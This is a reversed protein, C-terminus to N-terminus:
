VQALESITSAILLSTVEVPGEIQVEWNTARFGSPLRFPTSSTSGQAQTHKLVGDAYVKVTVPGAAFVQAAGFNIPSPVQFKKSKWVLSHAGSGAAWEVIVGAVVLYLRGTEREYWGATATIDHTSFDGTATDFIFGGSTMFGIYLSEYQVAFVLADSYPKWEKKTMLSATALEVAGTGVLWLGSPGPYMCAYGMDVFGRKLLCAEGKELKEVSLQGPIAGTVVYPMGKTTVLISNGYAGKAVIEADVTIQYEPPYAHPLYPESPCLVNKYHGVMFGGPHSILDIMAANPAVWTKSPLVEGLATLVPVAANSTTAVAVSGYYQYESASSGTNALYINKSVITHSGGPAVSMSAVTLTNGPTIALLASPESPPGEEGFSSVYTYVCAYTVDDVPPGATGSRSLTPAAAPKPIGLDWSGGPKSTGSLIRTNDGMKPVGDGTWYLRDFADLAVASRCVNVDTIWALWRDGTYRFISQKTGSVLSDTVTVAGESVLPRLSGSGLLCNAAVQAAPQPLNVPAIRPALGSFQNLRIIM